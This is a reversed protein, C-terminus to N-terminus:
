YHYFITIISIINLYYHHQYIIIIIVFGHDIGLVLDCAPVYQQWIFQLSFM